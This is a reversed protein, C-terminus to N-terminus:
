LILRQRVMGEPEANRLLLLWASARLQLGLARVTVAVKPRRLKVRARVPDGCRLIDQLAAPM